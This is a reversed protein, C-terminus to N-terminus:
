FGLPELGILLNVLMGGIENASYVIPLLLHLSKRGVTRDHRRLRMSQLFDRRAARVYTPTMAVLANKSAQALQQRAVYLRTRVNARTLEYSKTSRATRAWLDKYAAGGGMFDFARIAPDDFCDRVSLSLMATGIDEKAFAPNFGKQFYHLVGNDLFGLLVAQIVGDVKLTWIRVRGHDLGERAAGSLLAGLGPDSFAGPQGSSRWRVQHLQVLAELAAEMEGPASVRQFECQHNKFLRRAYYEVNRRMSRGLQHKYTSWDVSTDIYPARDTATATVDLVLGSIFHPLSESESPVRQLCIRDWDTRQRLFDAFAEGVRREEGRRSIIDMYESTKLEIGMGVFALERACPIGLVRHQRWYLPVVGVLRGESDRCCLIHLRSGRPACQNWWLGNWHHRLFYVQQASDELLEDWEDRLKEFETIDDVVDVRMRGPASTLSARTSPNM